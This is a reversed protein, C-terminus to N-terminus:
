LSANLWWWHIPLFRESMELSAGRPESCYFQEGKEDDLERYHSSYMKSVRNVWHAESNKSIRKRKRSTLKLGM